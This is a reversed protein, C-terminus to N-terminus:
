FDKSYICVVTLSGPLFVVTLSGPLIVTTYLFVSSVITLCQQVLLQELCYCMCNHIYFVWILKNVYLKM